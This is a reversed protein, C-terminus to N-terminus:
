LELLLYLFFELLLYLFFFNLHLTFLYLPPFVGSLSLEGVEVDEWFKINEGNGVV